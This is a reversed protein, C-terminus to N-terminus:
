LSFNDACLKDDSRISPNTTTPSFMLDRSTKITEKKIAYKSIAEEKFKEWQLVFSQINEDSQKSYYEIRTSLIDLATSTQTSNKLTPDGGTKLLKKAYKLTFEEKTSTNPTLKIQKFLLHFPTEQNQNFANAAKRNQEKENLLLPLFYEGGTEGAHLNTNHPRHYYKIGLHLINDGKKNQISFDVKPAYTLILECDSTGNTEYFVHLLTNDNEDQERILDPYKALTLFLEYPNTTILKKFYEGTTKFSSRDTKPSPLTLMNLKFLEWLTKSYVPQECFLEALNYQRHCYTTENTPSLLGTKKNEVLLKFYAIISDADNIESVKDLTSKLLEKNGTAIIQKLAFYEISFAAGRPPLRRLFFLSYVDMIQQPTGKKILLLFSDKKDEFKGAKKIEAFVSKIQESDKSLIVNETKKRFEETLPM